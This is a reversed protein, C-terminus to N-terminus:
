LFRTKQKQTQYLSQLNNLATREQLWRRWEQVIDAQFIVKVFIYNVTFM